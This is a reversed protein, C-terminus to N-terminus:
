DRWIDSIDESQSPKFISSLCWYIVLIFLVLVAIKAAVFAMVLLLAIVITWLVAELRFM